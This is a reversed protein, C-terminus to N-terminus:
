AYEKSVTAILNNHACTLQSFETPNTVTALKQPNGDKADLKLLTMHNERIFVLREDGFSSIGIILKNENEFRDIGFIVYGKGTNIDWFYHLFSYQSWGYSYNGLCILKSGLCAYCIESVITRKYEQSGKEFKLLKPNDFVKVEKKADSDWLRINGRTATAYVQGDPHYQLANIYEAEEIIHQRRNNVIDWIYIQHSYKSFFGGTQVSFIFQQNNNRYSMDNVQSGREDFIIEGVNNKLNWLIIQGNHTSSVLQQSDDRFVM